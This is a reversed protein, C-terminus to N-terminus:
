GSRHRPSPAPQTPAIDFRPRWWANPEAPETIALQLEEALGAQSTLTYRGYM